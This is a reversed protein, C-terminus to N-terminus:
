IGRYFKAADEPLVSNIIAGTSFEFGAWKAIRPAVEIHFHLNDEKKSYQFFFNYSANISKLRSLIKKLIAAMDNLEEDKLETGAIHRKPFIWAEYNFRSAFPAFAMANKTEFIKRKGRSELKIISCYPCTKFKKAAKIKTDIEEPLIPISAVQIHSHVLSTGALPGNNKFVTVYKISKNKSLANVRLFCVELVEKIHRIELDALGKEHERTEVIVEHAGYTNGELLLDGNKRLKQSGNLQVAPFKNPFWRIKWTGKEEVRGIEKPTLHENAPCFLCTKASSNPKDDIKFEMPRKKRGGAYFIWRNLIYDKRLIGMKIDNKKRIIFKKM